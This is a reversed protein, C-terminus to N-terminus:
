GKRALGAQAEGITKLANSISNQMISLEQTAAQLKSTLTGLTAGNEQLKASTAQSQDDKKITANFAKNSAAQKSVQDSLSTIDDMKSDLTAGMAEALAQLYGGKRNVGKNEDGTSVTLKEADAVTQENMAKVFQSVVNNASRALNGEQAPSFNFQSAVMRVAEGVSSPAARGLVSALDPRGGGAAASFATQAMSIMSQPLGLKQGLQQIVEKGIAAGITRVALSAWGAPGMALQALSIPNIVSKVIGGLVSM